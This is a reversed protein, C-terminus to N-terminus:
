RRWRPGSAIVVAGFTMALALALHWGVSTGSTPAVIDLLLAGGLQGLVSLLSFVLVGLTPVVWAAGVIVSLGLLGGLYAWWPAGLPDRVSVGAVTVAAGLFVSMMIMGGIFNVLAAVFPSRAAVAVRGNVAQQPAILVGSLFALSAYVATGPSIELRDSIGVVVALVTIVSALVRQWSIARRGSASIGLRDVVLSGTTQGAVIGVSFVAVGILPVTVSQTILFIAGFVGGVLIPWPLRRARIDRSVLGAGARSPAHLGVIALLMVLGTAMTLWAPFLGTGTQTSLEGNVRSQVAILSGLAVTLAAPGLRRVVGPPSM